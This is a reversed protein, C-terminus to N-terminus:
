KGPWRISLRELPMWSRGRRPPLGFTRWMETWPDFVSREWLPVSESRLHYWSCNMDFIPILVIHLRPSPHCDLWTEILVLSACWAFPLYIKGLKAKLKWWLNFCFCLPQQTGIARHFKLSVPFRVSSARWALAAVGLHQPCVARSM